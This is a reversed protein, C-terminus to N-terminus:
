NMRRARLFSVGAQIVIASSAIESRSMLAITGGTGGVAVVWRGWLPCNSSTADVGTSGNGTVANDARQFTGSVSTTTTAALNQGIVTGSPIDLAIAVGTTGAASTFAGFFEVEYTKSADATFSLGTVATLTTTSNTSNSALIAEFMCNTDFWVDGNQPSSPASSGTYVQPQVRWAAGDWRVPRSLTSSWALTGVAATSGPDPSTAGDAVAISLPIRFGLDRIGSM